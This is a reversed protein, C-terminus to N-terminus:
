DLDQINVDFCFHSIWNSNIWFLFKNKYWNLQPHFDLSYLVPIINNLSRTAASKKTLDISDWLMPRPHNQSIKTPVTQNCINRQKCSYINLPFYFATGMWQVLELFFERRLFGNVGLRDQRSNGAQLRRPWYQKNLFYLCCWTPL